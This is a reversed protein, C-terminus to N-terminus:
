INRGSLKASLVRTAPGCVHCRAAIALLYRKRWDTAFLGAYSAFARAGVGNLKRILPCGQFLANEIM